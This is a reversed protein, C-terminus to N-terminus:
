HESPDETVHFACCSSRGRGIPKQLTGLSCPVGPVCLAINGPSPAVRHGAKSRHGQQLHGERVDAVKYPFGPEPTVTKAGNRVQVPPLPGTAKEAEVVEDRARAGRPLVEPAFLAPGGAGTRLGPSGRCQM